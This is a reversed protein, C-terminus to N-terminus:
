DVKKKANTFVEKIQVTYLTVFEIKKLLLTNISRIFHM